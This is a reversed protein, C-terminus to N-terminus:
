QTSTKVKPKEAEVKKALEEKKLAGITIRKGRKTRANSRTRQGRVPLNLLHRRGRYSSIQKLRKINEQVEKRLDGEVKLITEITKQLRAVEEESLDKAKKAPEIKAAVLVKGVNRRGIGYIATLAIDTRKNEPLDIGAIRPM